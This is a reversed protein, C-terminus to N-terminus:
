PKSASTSAGLASSFTMKGIIKPNEECSSVYSYHTRCRSSQVSSAMASSEESTDDSSIISKGEEEDLTFHLKKEFFHRPASDFFPRMETYVIQLRASESQSLVKSSKLFPDWRRRIKENKISEVVSDLSFAPDMWFECRM